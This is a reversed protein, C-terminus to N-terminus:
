RNRLVWYRHMILVVAVGGEPDHQEFWRLAARVNDRESDLRRVAAQAVGSRLDSSLRNRHGSKRM